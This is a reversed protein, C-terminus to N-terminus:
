FNLRLGLQMIRGGTSGIIRGANVNPSLRTGIRTDPSNWNAHNTANFMSATFELSRASDLAIRKNLTLDHNYGGPGRLFPHTRSATGPTFDAPQVFASPNFWASASQQEARPNVGSVPDVYLTHIVGGTNNFLASLVLPNGSWYNATGTFAWGGVIQALVGGHNLFRKGVGFPLEYLYNFSLNHPTAWSARSWAANRNYFDQVNSSFDDMRYQYGYNAGFALGGSTRKEVQINYQHTRYRGAAFSALNFDQFQPYPRQSNNFTLNNLKDRHQLATLPIANPGAVGGSVFQNRGYHYNYNATVILNRAVQRQLGVHFNQTTPQQGSMDFFDAATGNAADPRLNPFRLSGQLGNRLIVAPSLQTNDSLWLPTGNFAQTGFHGSITPANAYRRDYNLRLVTNNDGLVSWALAIQPEVMTWTPAFSRGYGNTNAAVLAGPLGNAPNIEGLSITSQRNYKEIRQTFSELNFGLTITLSPLVQWQDSFITRFQNWRYYSPSIVVSQAAQSSLGLLYSAFSHGTNIIGPLSTLGPTFEFRGEPFTPQFVNAQQRVIEQGISLRHNRWRIAFTDAGQMWLWANRGVPNFQGMSQYGGPFGGAFNVRPFPRGNADLLSDARYQELNAEFRATNVTRPSATFVHDIHAGRFLTAQPPSASNAITLFIPANGNKGTSNNVRITVRHKQLFSHDVSVIFGNASNVQPTVAYFNNQFFPGANTNPQPLHQLMDLAVPDLRTLPITNGPFQNRLYQLNSTSVSQAPDFAPNLATSAPDYIRLPQGNPDVVHGWEGTRELTTPITTMNFQGISERMGEYSATFFTKGTGNYIKPLLVPGTVSFGYQNRRLKRQEGGRQVIQHPIADFADNRLNEYVRGHWAPKSPARAAAAANLGPTGLQATQTRFEDIAKLMVSSVAPAPAINELKIAQASALSAALLGVPLLHLRPRIVPESVTAVAFCCGPKM